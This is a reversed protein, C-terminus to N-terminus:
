SLLGRETLYRKVVKNVEIHLVEVQYNLKIMDEHTIKKALDELIISIEPYEMLLQSRIVPSAHYPPFAKLDDELIILDFESIRSDAIMGVSVAVRGEKVALTLLDSDIAIMQNPNFSFDYVDHLYNLGDERILFEENTALKLQSGSHNMYNILDSITAIQHKEAFERKMILGWSSNFDSREIWVINNNADMKKVANFAENLGHLPPKKHFYMRATNTYEWYLDVMDEEIAKRISPSDLFRIEHVNFGNDRLLMTAMSMLIYQESFSKSGVTITPRSDLNEVDIIDKPKNSCSALMIIAVVIMILINSNKLHPHIM